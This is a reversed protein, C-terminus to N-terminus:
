ATEETAPEKAGLDLRFPPYEDRMLAAYAIVRVVWRNMGLVFDYIGRPYRDKFLLVIAAIAVFLGILGGGVRM